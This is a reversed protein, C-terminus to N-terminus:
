DVERVRLSMPTNHIAPGVCVRLRVATRQAIVCSRPLVVQLLMHELYRKNATKYLIKREFFSKTIEAHMTSPIDRNLGVGAIPRSQLLQLSKEGVHVIYLLLHLKGRGNPLVLNKFSTDRTQNFSTVM